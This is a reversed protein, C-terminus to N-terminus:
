RSGPYVLPMNESCLGCQSPKYKDISLKILYYYPCGFDLGTSRDVISIVAKVQAGKKKCIEMVENVSEGTTIVDEAIIIKQDPEIEFGRRLQAEEVKRETFVMRCGAAYALMYGWLIGGIAPSAVANISKLDINDKMLNLAKRALELTIDPYQLLRACQLYYKSHDGSSLKFHGEMVSGTQQLIRFIDIGEVQSIVKIM